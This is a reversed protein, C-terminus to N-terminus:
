EKIFSKIKIKYNELTKSDGIMKIGSEKSSITYKGYTGNNVVLNENRDRKLFLLVEENNEFDAVHSYQEGVDGVEGGPKTIVIQKM